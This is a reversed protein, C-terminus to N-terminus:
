NTSTFPSTRVEPIANVNKLSKIAQLALPKGKAAARGTVSGPVDPLEEDGNDLGRDRLFLRYAEDMREDTLQGDRVAHSIIFRQWGAISNGWTNLEDWITAQPREQSIEEPSALGDDAIGHEDV